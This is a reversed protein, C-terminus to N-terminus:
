AVKRGHRFCRCSQCDLERGPHLCPGHSGPDFVEEVEVRQQRGFVDLQPLGHASEAFLPQARVDGVPELGTLYRDALQGGVQALEPHQAHV